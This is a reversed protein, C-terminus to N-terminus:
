DVLRHTAQEAETTIDKRVEVLGGGDKRRVEQRARVWSQLGLGLKRGEIPFRACRWPRKKGFGLGRSYGWGWITRVEVTTTGYRKGFGLGRSYGQGMVTVRVRLHLIM